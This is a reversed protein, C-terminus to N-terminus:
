VDERKVFGGEQTVRHLRRGAEMLILETAELHLLRAKFLALDVVFPQQEPADPRYGERLRMLFEFLDLGISLAPDGGACWDLRLGLPLTEVWQGSTGAVPYCRFREAPFRKFVTLEERDSHNTRVCLHGSRVEPAVLGDSRSIGDCLDQLVIEPEEEGRLIALYRGFHRYPLLEHWPGLNSAALVDEDECAEFLFRRKMQPHWNPGFAEYSVRHIAHPSRSPLALMLAQIDAYEHPLRHFHLFRELRPTSVLAPDVVGLEALLEDPEQRPNFAANFYLADAWALPVEDGELAQHVEDCTLVGVLIYSLASRLDRMTIHRRHRAYVIQFLAKLRARVAVGHQPDSLTDANLKMPCLSRARCDQCVQWRAEDLLSLLVKEFLCESCQGGLQPDVLSREKLDVVLVRPDATLREDLVRHLQRGLWDFERRFYFFDRLKGDNIAVLITQGTGGPPADTGSLPAFVERLLDDAGKENFAESADHNASFVHGELEYSWGNPTLYRQEAGADKLRQGVQELFATKGDGPNGTLFVALFRREDLIAPLLHTDLRTPVYTAEAFESDLGRNEANGHRCNRYASQVWGVWENVRREGDASAADRVHASARALAEFLEQASAYRSAPDPSLAREFVGLLSPGLQDCVAPSPPVPHDKSIPVSDSAFPAAGTFVWYLVAAASFLDSTRDWGENRDVEPARFLLTGVSSTGAMGADRALGFDILKPGAKGMIVNRMSIDRHYIGQRELHSLADLLQRAFDVAQGLPWPFEGRLEDLTAGEVYEMKLQYPKQAPWVEYVRVIAAHPEMRDLAAFETKALQDAWEPRHIRKLVYLGGAFGDEVLLTTATSGSGLVRKVHYRDAILEGVDEPAPLELKERDLSAVAEELWSLAQMAGGARRDPDGDTMDAIALAINEAFEASFGSEQLAVDPLDLLGDPRLYETAQSGTLLEFLIVGVAFVDSAQTAPAISGRCEPALYPSAYPLLSDALEAITQSEPIRAFDFDAFTVDVDPSTVDVVYLCAPSINRHLVGAAHIEALRRLVAMALRVAQVHSPRFGEVQLAKLAHGQPILYPVVLCQEGEWYFPPEAHAVCQLGALQLLAEWDRCILERQRLRSEEDPLDSLRYVKLRRLANPGGVMHEALVALYHPGDELRELVKYANIRRPLPPADELARLRELVVGRHAALLSFRRSADLELLGEAAGELRLVQANRRPDLVRLDTKGSLIVLGTVFHHGAEETRPLCQRLYGALMRALQDVKSLPSHMSEGSPLVWREEDGRVVGSISKTDVVFVHHPGVVVQDIEWSRGKPTVFTKNCLITWGAPLEDRLAAAAREEGDTMFEGFCILDAM